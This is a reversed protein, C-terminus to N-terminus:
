GGFQFGEGQPLHGPGLAPGLDGGAGRCRRSGPWDSSRVVGFWGFRRSILGSLGPVARRPVGTVAPGLTRDTVWVARIPTPKRDLSAFPVLRQHPQRHIAQHRRPRRLFRPLAPSMREPSRHRLDEGAFPAAPALIVPPKGAAAASTPTPAPSSRSRSLRAPDATVSSTDRGPRRHRHPAYDASLCRRNKIQRHM